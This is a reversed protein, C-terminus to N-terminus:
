RRRLMSYLTEEVLRRPCSPRECPRSGPFYGNKELYLGIGIRYKASSIYFLSKCPNVWPKFAEELTIGRVDPPVRASWDPSYVIGHYLPHGPYRRADRFYEELTVGGYLEGTGDYAKSWDPSIYIGNLSETTPDVRRM